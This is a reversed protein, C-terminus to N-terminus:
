SQFIYTQAIGKRSIGLFIKAHYSHCIFAFSKKEFIDFEMPKHIIHILIKDYYLKPLQKYFLSGQVSQSIIDYTHGVGGITLSRGTTGAGAVVCGRGGVGVYLGYEAVELLAVGVGDGVLVRSRAEEVTSTVVAAPCLQRCLTPPPASPPLLVPPVFHALLM